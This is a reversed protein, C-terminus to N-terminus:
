RLSLLHADAKPLRVGTDFDTHPELREGTLAMLFIAGILVAINTIVALM